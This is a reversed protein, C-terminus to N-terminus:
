YLIGWKYLQLCMVIGRFMLVVVVLRSPQSFLHQTCELVARFMVFVHDTVHRDVFVTCAWCWCNIKCLSHEARSILVIRLVVVNVWYLILSSVVKGIM